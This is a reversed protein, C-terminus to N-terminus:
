QHLIVRKDTNITFDFNAIPNTENEGPLETFPGTNKGVSADIQGVAIFISKGSPDTIFAETSPFNDGTLSGTITLTGAKKNESISFNAFIDINPTGSPTKPNAAMAHTGFAITKVDGKQIM